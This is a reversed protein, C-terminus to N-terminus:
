PSIPRRRSSTTSPTTTYRSPTVTGSSARGEPAFGLCAHVSIEDASAGELAFHTLHLPGITLDYQVCTSEGVTHTTEVVATEPVYRQDAGDSDFWHIEGDIELGFRSRDVGTLGSLPYSYDRISGDRSVHVLREGLGSFLGTTSRREGPFRQPDGQSRKFDNLAGHLEM